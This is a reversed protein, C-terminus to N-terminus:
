VLKARRGAGKQGVQAQLTAAGPVREPPLLLPHMCLRVTDGGVAEQTAPGPFSCVTTLCIDQLEPYTFFFTPFKDLLGWFAFSADAM